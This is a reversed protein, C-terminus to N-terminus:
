PCYWPWDGDIPWGNDQYDIDNIYTISSKSSEAAKSDEETFSRQFLSSQDSRNNCYINISKISDEKNRAEEENNVLAYFLEFTIVFVYTPHVKEWVSRYDLRKERKHFVEIESFSHEIMMPLFDNYSMKKSNIHEEMVISLLYDLICARQLDTTSHIINFNIETLKKNDSNFTLASGKFFIINCIPNIAKDDFKEQEPDLNNKVWNEAEEFTTEGLTLGDISFIKCEDMEVWEEYGLVNKNSLLDCIETKVLYSDKNLSSNSFIITEISQEKSLICRIRQRIALIIEHYLEQADFVINGNQKALNEGVITYIPDEHNQLWHIYEHPLLLHANECNGKQLANTLIDLWLSVIQKYVEHNINKYKSLLFAPRTVRYLSRGNDNTLGALIEYGVISCFIDILTCDLVYINNSNEFNSLMAYDTKILLIKGM